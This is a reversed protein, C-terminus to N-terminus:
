RLRRKAPQNIHPVFHGGFLERWGEITDCNLVGFTYETIELKTEREGAPTLTFRLMSTAPGAWPPLLCGALLLSVNKEVGIVRHWVLGEGPGSIEGMM